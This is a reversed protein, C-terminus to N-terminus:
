YVVLMSLSVNLSGSEKVIVGGPRMANPYFALFASAPPVGDLTGCAGVTGTIDHNRTPGNPFQYGTGYEFNDRCQMASVERYTDPVMSQYVMKSYAFRLRWAGSAVTLLLYSVCTADPQTPFDHRWGTATKTLTFTGNFAAGNFGQSLYETGYYWTNSTWRIYDQAAITVSVSKIGDLACVPDLCCYWGGDDCCGCGEAVKGDKVIVAGGKTAISTMPVGHYRAM